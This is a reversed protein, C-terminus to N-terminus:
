WTHIHTGAALAYTSGNPLVLDCETGNPIECTITGVGNKLSWEVGIRGNPVDHHTRSWSIGAGPRPAVRVRRYGPEQITLGAVYQHLFSIVAGKSYHNLSHTAKDGVIGDWDEWITSYQNTMYMWSPETDQFLLSYATDLHGHDALVPLLMPTALFGTGLHMDAEEILRVLDDATQQRLSDPVLGFSLARCLNAQTRPMLAGEDNIFEARWADLVNAALESYRQAEEVKGLLVSIQALQDASRYLYATAVAGHDQNGLSAVDTEIDAGPELWEGYHWGSDWLFREHPLPNPRQAERLPHRRGEARRAAFEVWQTMSEFQAALMDTRACARYLEWPVHVAADGWGSSGHSGRWVPAGPSPDPVISTVKGDPFQDAALDRMWKASWDFVDYLYSATEVYIQWDGTWGSRERTPCDTPIECANGRFSWDAAHHLRNIREDSCEFDGVRQLDTHVVVSVISKPDLVGDIGEVEVFRFGKTSHRPEFVTNDGASFVRDTQFSVNRPESFAADAVNSQTVSGESNIWEGYRMTVENGVPGLGSLRVWGNSNQGFDVVHRQPAIQAISVPSLEEIRRVPPGLVECLNDMSYDAVIVTDWSARDTGAECWGPVKRRFDHTEGAILDAALIHSPSSCWTNNTSVSIQQGDTLEITLEALFSVKSGYADIERIVGHQGRWWGDSLIAGIANKGVHLLGTVDFANVQLHKRYATFGPTLEIDGVRSGNIFAEYVGHATARLCASAIQSPIVFESALHYAPRHMAPSDASEVPEIWSATFAPLASSRSSETM